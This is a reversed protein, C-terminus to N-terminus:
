KLPGCIICGCTKTCYSYTGGGSCRPCTCCIEGFPCGNIPCGGGDSIMLAEMDGENSGENIDTVTEGENVEEINMKDIFQDADSDYSGGSCGVVLLFGAISLIAIKEKKM